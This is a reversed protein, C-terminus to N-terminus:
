GGDMKDMADRHRSMNDYVENRGTVRATQLAEIILDINHVSTLHPILKACLERAQRQPDFM